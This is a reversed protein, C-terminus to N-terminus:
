FKYHLHVLLKSKLSINITEKNERKFINLATCIETYHSLVSLVDYGQTGVAPTMNGVIETDSVSQGNLVGINSAGHLVM